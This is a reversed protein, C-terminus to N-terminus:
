RTLTREAGDFTGTMTNGSVTFTTSERYEPPIEDWGGDWYHTPTLTATNGSHTYTGKAMGVAEWSSDTITVTVGGGVWTGVFPNDGGDSDCGALVFMATLALVVFGLYLGRKTKMSFEKKAAAAAFWFFNYPNQRRCFERL